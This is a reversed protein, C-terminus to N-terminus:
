RGEAPDDAPDDASEVGEEIAPRDADPEDVDLDGSGSQVADAPSTGGDFMAPVGSDDDRSDSITVDPPSKAAETGTGEDDAEPDDEATADDADAPTNPDGAPAAAAVHDGVDVGELAAVIAKVRSVSPEDGAAELVDILTREDIETGIEHLLLTAYTYKM